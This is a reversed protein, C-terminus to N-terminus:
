ALKGTKSGEAEQAGRRPIEVIMACCSYITMTSPENGYQICQVRADVSRDNRYYEPAPTPRNTGWPVNGSWGDRQDTFGEPSGWDVWDLKLGVVPQENGSEDYNDLETAVPRFSIKLDLSPFIEYMLM